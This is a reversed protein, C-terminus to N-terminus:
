SVNAFTEDEVPLTLAHFDQLKEQMEITM